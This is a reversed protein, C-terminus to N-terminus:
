YIRPESIKLGAVIKRKVGAITRIFPSEWEWRKILLKDIGFAEKFKVTGEHGGSPNFDYYKYGNEIANLIINHQLFNSIGYQFYDSLFSAHWAVCHKNHYFILSGGVVKGDFIVFWLKINPDRIKFINEFLLFPYHSTAKNGWRKLAEQYISYYKKWEIINNDNAVKCVVGIRKAKRIIDQNSSKYNKWLKEIDIDLKLIHTFDVNVSFQKPLTYSFLPNGVISINSISKSTLYTFIENIEDEKIRRESIIGGYVGAINSVYSSVLGIRTRICILPLIVRMQDDLVFKKTAINMNPYTKTFIKSWTPTHFFTSYRCKNVIEQWEDFNVNNFVKM